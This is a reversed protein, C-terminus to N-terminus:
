LRRREAWYAHAQAIAEDNRQKHRRHRLMRGIFYICVGMRFIAMAWGDFPNGPAQLIAPITLFAGAGTLGMGVRESVNFCHHWVTLKWAVIALICISSVVGTATWFDTM